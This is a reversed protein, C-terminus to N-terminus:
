GETEIYDCLANHHTNLADALIKDAALALENGATVSPGLLVWASEIAELLVKSHDCNCFDKGRLKM